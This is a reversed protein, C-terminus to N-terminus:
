SAGSALLLLVRLRHARKRERERWVYVCVRGLKFSVCLGISPMLTHDTHFHGHRCAVDHLCGTVRQSASDSGCKRLTANVICVYFIRLGAPWKAPWAM